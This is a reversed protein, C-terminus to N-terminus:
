LDQATEYSWDDYEESQIDAGYEKMLQDFDLREIVVYWSQDLAECVAEFISDYDM